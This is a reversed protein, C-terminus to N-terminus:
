HKQQKEALIGYCLQGNEKLLSFSSFSLHKYYVSWSVCCLLSIVLTTQKPDQLQNQYWWLCKIQTYALVQTYSAYHADSQLLVLEQEDDDDQAVM